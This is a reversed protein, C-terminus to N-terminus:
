RRGCGDILSTLDKGPPAYPVETQRPDWDHDDRHAVAHFSSGAGAVQRGILRKGRGKDVSNISVINEGEPQVILM